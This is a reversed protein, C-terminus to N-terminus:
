RIRQSMYLTVHILRYVESAMRFQSIGVDHIQDPRWTTHSERGDREDLQPQAHSANSRSGGETFITASNFCANEPGTGTYGDTITHRRSRLGKADSCLPSVTTDETDNRLTPIRINTGRKPLLLTGTPYQQQQERGDITTKHLSKPIEPYVEMGSEAGQM